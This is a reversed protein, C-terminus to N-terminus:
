RQAVTGSGSSGSLMRGFIAPRHRLYYYENIPRDDEMVPANPFQQIMQDLPVEKSLALVFQREPSSEPGWEMMDAAARAPMRSALTSATAHPIPSTSALFHFGYDMVSVFVRVNSFSQQLAKAISSQVILEGGDPLWQQLIGGPRLHRKVLTYFEKSYLLSSGATQVPPPPDIAIVDYQESTRELFLRGDDIVLHSQPSQLLTPGDAHFYGYVQPVSPVLEVVTSSIGWSLASRHTTGMGFCIILINTPKRDLMALPLHAMMKTIPRLGTMGEGNVLLRKELRSDGKAVVTATYDRKVLPHSFQDAFDNTYVFLVASVTALVALGWRRAPTPLDRWSFLPSKTMVLGVAFWPLALVALSAREGLWPLLLFGSLLPGLICGMINVAYARGAREGDGSSFRDVMMPTLFGLAASFPVVGLILRLLRHLSLRPDVALLPLFITFALLAWELRGLLEPRFLRKRYLLSGIYTAGLYVALIAAFAYVVTGLWPTFIRVWVVEAAMSTLGTGFLLWLLKRSDSAPLAFASPPTEAPGTKEITGRQRGLAWASVALVFNLVSSVYLTKRFGLAEILFLPLGAGVVAGLVNALYLYSFSRSSETNSREDIAFMALPFTAGMCTCWPVLSIAIWTGAALYFGSPSLGHTELRELLIRGWSLQLPVVLASIGILLEALAYLRLPSVFLRARWKRLLRGTAWSGLGLGLMFVSLVISVLPTTVGYQAMALRLWVVEYLVSCFGSVMFFFFFWQM